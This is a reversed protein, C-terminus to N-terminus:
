YENRARETRCKACVVSGNVDAKIELLDLVKKEVKKEVFSKLSM